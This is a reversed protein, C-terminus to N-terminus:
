QVGNGGSTTSVSGSEAPNFSDVLWTGGVKDLQVEWRFPEPTAAVYRSSGKAKPYAYTLDGAVLVTATDDGLAAVGTAFVQSSVKVRDQSVTALVVPAGDKEFSAKFADTMVAEVQKVYGPMAKGKLMSPGYTNVRLAFQRAQSMAADRESALPSQGAGFLDGAGYRAWRVGLYGLSAVILALLAVAAVLRVWRSTPSM